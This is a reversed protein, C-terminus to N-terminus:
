LVSDGVGRVLEKRSPRLFGGLPRGRMESVWAGPSLSNEGEGQLRDLYKGLSGKWFLVPM